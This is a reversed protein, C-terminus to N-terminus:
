LHFPEQLAIKFKIDHFYLLNAILKITLNLIIYINTNYLSM